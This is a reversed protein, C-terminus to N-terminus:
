GPVFPCSNSAPWEGGALVKICIICKCKPSSEVNQTKISNRKCKAIIRRNRGLRVKQLTLVFGANVLSGPETMAKAVVCSIDALSVIILKM